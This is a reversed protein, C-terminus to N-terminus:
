LARPRRPGRSRPANYPWSPSWAVVRSPPYPGATYPAPYTEDPGSLPNTFLNSSVWKWAWWLAIVILVWKVVKWMDM